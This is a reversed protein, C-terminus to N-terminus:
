RYRPHRQALSLHCLHLGDGHTGCWVSDYIYQIVEERRQADFDVDIDPVVQRESSLFREFVLDHRIPDVPSIYLLYAVLSNAASGRGQCRIGQERAFRVIDWVILFYNALGAQEIIRLEHQVQRRVREPVEQGYRQPLAEHCLRRLYASSSMGYRTPFHPLDQLGYSLDFHCREAIVQTNVLAQPQDPFLAAMQAASKLYYESNLRRLHTAEDLTTLHRICVLVDQLRQGEPWAYHVNNTAVCGLGLYDALAALRPILIDDDPLFHRQLEIWFRERGFLDVYRRAAAVATNRGNEQLLAQAPAGCRCGSLAILGDACGVLEQFPLLAQGKPATHRARSILYCLNHWGTQDEALLTIHHTGLEAGGDITLEAGLIPQIGQERAARVFRVAGYVADHDTLALSRMDLMAAQAILEEPHSAGDLLSFNSHCHLEVYCSPTNM